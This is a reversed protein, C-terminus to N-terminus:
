WCSRLIHTFAVFKLDREFLYAILFVKNLKVSSALLFGLARIRWNPIQVVLDDKVQQIGWEHMLVYGDASFIKRKICSCSLNFLLCTSGNKAKVSGRDSATTLSQRCISWRTASLSSFSLWGKCTLFRVVAEESLFTLLTVHTIAFPTEIFATFLFLFTLKEQFVSYFLCWLFLVQYIWLKSILLFNTSCMNWCLCVYWRGCM